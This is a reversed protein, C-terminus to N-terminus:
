RRLRNSPAWERRGLILLAAIYIACLGGLAPYAGDVLREFGVSGLLVAVGLGGVRVDWAGIRWRRLHLELALLAGALTSLVAVWMVAITMYYGLRGMRAALLVSPMPALEVQEWHARMCVLAALLLALLLAGTACGIRLADRQACRKAGLALGAACAVGCASTLNFGAYAAASALAGPRAYLPGANPASAALVAFYTFIMIVTAGGLWKLAGIGRSVFVAATVATLVIGLERAGHINVSLAGLEGGAAVMAASITVLLLAILSNGGASSGSARQMLSPLAGEGYRASLAIVGGTAIATLAAAACAGWYGAVGFRGFFVVIERGSAFGAGVISAVIAAAMGVIDRIRM